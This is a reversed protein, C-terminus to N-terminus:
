ISEGGPFIPPHNNADPCKSSILIWTLTSDNSSKKQTTNYNTINGNSMKKRNFNLENNQRTKTEVQMMYCGTESKMNM